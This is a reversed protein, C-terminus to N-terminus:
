QRTILSHQELFSLITALSEDVQEHDTHVTV